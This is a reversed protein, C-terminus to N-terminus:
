SLPIKELLLFIPKQFFKHLNSIFNVIYKIHNNTNENLNQFYKVKPLFPMKMPYIIIDANTYYLGKIVFLIKSHM